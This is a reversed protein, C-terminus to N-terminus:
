CKLIMDDFYDPTLIELKGNSGTRRQGFPIPSRAM